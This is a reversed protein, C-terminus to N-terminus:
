KAGRVIAIWHKFLAKSTRKPQKTVAMRKALRKAQQKHSM